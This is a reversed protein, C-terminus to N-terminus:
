CTVFDGKPRIKCKSSVRDVILLDLTNLSKQKSSSIPIDQQKNEGQGKVRWAAGSASLLGPGKSKVM